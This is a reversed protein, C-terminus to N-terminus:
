VQPIMLTAMTTGVILDRALKESTYTNLQKTIPLLFNLLATPSKVRKAMKRKLKHAFETPSLGQSPQFTFRKRIQVAVVGVLAYIDRALADFASCPRAPM